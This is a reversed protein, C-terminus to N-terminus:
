GRDVPELLQDDNCRYHHTAALVGGRFERVLYSRGLHTYTVVARPDTIRTAEIAATMAQRCPDLDVQGAAHNLAVGGMTRAAVVLVVAAATTGIAIKRMM